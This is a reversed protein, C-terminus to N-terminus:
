IKSKKHNKLKKLKKIKKEKILHNRRLKLKHKLLIISEILLFIEIILLIILRILLTYSWKEFSKIIETVWHIVCLLFFLSLFSDILITKTSIKKIRKRM